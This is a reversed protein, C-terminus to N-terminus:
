RAKRSGGLALAASATSRRVAAPTETRTSVPSVSPTAAATHRLTPMRTSFIISPESTSTSSSASSARRASPVCSKARSEGSCFARTTLASRVPTGPAGAPSTPCTTPKMPSPMLSAAAMRAESTPIETSVATSTALSLASTMRVRLSRATSPRATRSPRRVYPFVILYMLAVALEFKPLTRETSAALANRGNRGM